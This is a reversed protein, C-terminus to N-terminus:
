VGLGALPDGGLSLTDSGLNNAIPDSGGGVATDTGPILLPNAASPAVADSQGLANPLPIVQGALNVANAATAAVQAGQATSGSYSAATTGASGGSTIGLIQLYAPLEGKATIYVLYGGVLVLAIYTSQSL